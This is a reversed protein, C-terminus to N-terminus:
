QAVADIGSPIGGEITISVRHPLCVISQGSQDIAGQLRCREDPCNAEEVRVRGGEIRIVNFAGGQTIRVDRAEHLPYREDHGPYAIRVTAGPTQPLLFFLALALSAVAIIMLWDARKLQWFTRM